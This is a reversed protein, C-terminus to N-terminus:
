QAYEMFKDDHVAKDAIRLAVAIDKFTSEFEISLVTHKQGRRWFRAIVQERKDNSYQNSLWILTHGGHQLEVGHGMSNPHFILVKIEKNNWRKQVENANATNIHVADPIMEQLKILEADYNYVIAVNSEINRIEDIVADIRYTSIWHTNQQEDYYFGATLQMLKQEDAGASESFYNPLKHTELFTSVIKKIAKPPPLYVLEDILEPLEHRYDPIVHIATHAQEYFKAELHPFLKWRRKHFDTPYFWTNIFADKRTGFTKGKNVLLLQPYLKLPTENVPTGTLSCMWDMKTSATRLVRFFTGGTDAVKTSEDILIGNFTAMVNHKKLWPLMNFAVVSVQLNPNTIASLRKDQKLEAGVYGIRVHCTHEWSKFEQTWVTKAIALTSIILYRHTPHDNLRETIATAGIITKGSGMKGVILKGGQRAVDIAKLQDDTLQSYSRLTKSTTSSM